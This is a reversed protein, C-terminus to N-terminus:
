KSCENWFEKLEPFTKFFDLNRRQDYQTIFQCFQRRNKSLVNCPLTEKMIDLNRKLKLIEHPKFGELTNVYDETQENEEMFEVCDEVIKILEPTANQVDLWNPYKLLPIDFFIRQFKEQKYKKHIIGHEKENENSEPAIEFEEQNAAGFELRLDLILQM